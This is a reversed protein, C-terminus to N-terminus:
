KRPSNFQLGNLNGTIQIQYFNDKKDFKGMIMNIFSYENIFQNSFAVEGKIDVLSSMFFKSNPRVNGKFNARIPAEKDGLILQKVNIKGNNMQALIGLTRLPMNGLKFGSLNQSAIGFSKSRLSLKLDKLNGDALTATTNLNVKGELKLAKFDKQLTNLNIKNDHINIKITDLGTTVLANINNNLINTELKFHPGIPDFTFGRFFLNTNKIILDDGFQNFCRKPINTKPINISPPIFNFNIQSTKISCGPITSLAAQIQSQVVKLFPFYLLLALFFTFGLYLLWKFVGIKPLSYDIEHTKSSM